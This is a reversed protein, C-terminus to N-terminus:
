LAQKFELWEIKKSAFPIKNVQANKNPDTLIFILPLAKTFDRGKLDTRYIVRM